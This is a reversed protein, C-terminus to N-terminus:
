ARVGASAPAPERVAHHAGRTAAPAPVTIALSPERTRTRVSAPRIAM